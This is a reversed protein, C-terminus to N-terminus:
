LAIFKCGLLWLNSDTPAHSLNHPIVDTHKQWLATYNPPPVLLLTIIHQLQSPLRPGPPLDVVLIIAWTAQPLCGTRAEPNYSYVREM